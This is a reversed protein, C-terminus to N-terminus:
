GGSSGGSKSSSGFGGRSVTGGKTSYGTSTKAGQPVTKTYSPYSNRNQGVAPVSAGRSYFYWAYIASGRGDSSSNNCQSDDVREGTEDNFCVQAYDAEQESSAVVATITGALLATVGLGVVVTRRRSRKKRAEAHAAEREREKAFPDIIPLPGGPGPQSAGPTSTGPKSSGANLSGPEQGGPAKDRDDNAPPILEPHLEPKPVQWPPPKPPNKAADPGQGGGAAGSGSAGNGSAGNGSAGSGAAGENPDM